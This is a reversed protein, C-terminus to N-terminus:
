RPQASAEAAIDDLMELLSAASSKTKELRCTVAVHSQAPAKTVIKGCAVFLKHLPLNGCCRGSRLSM